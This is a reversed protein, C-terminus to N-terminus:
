NMQHCGLIGEALLLGIDIESSVINDELM